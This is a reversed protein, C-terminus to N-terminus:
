DQWALIETGRGGLAAKESVIRHAAVHIIAVHPAGGDDEALLKGTLAGPQGAAVVGKIQALGGTAGADKGLPPDQGGRGRWSKPTWM